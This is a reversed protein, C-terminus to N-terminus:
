YGAERVSVDRLYMPDKNEFWNYIYIQADTNNEGTTFTLHHPGYTVGQWIICAAAGGFNDASMSMGVEESVARMTVKLTYSTKPKLGTFIQTIREGPKFQLAPKGGDDVVGPTGTVGWSSLLGGEFLGNQVFNIKGYDVKPTWGPFNRILSEVDLRGNGIKDSGRAALNNAYIPGRLSSHLFYKSFNNRDATTPLEALGLALAGAYLPSAFSTGTFSAVRDGPFASFISEGPAIGWLQAGYNTFSSLIDDSNVSGIGFMFGLGDGYTQAAPFTIGDLLGDNGASSVVYVKQSAAYALQTTLSKQSQASGLSLNIVDAGHAVAWDIALVVNDLDGSGNSDLVRLPLITVKPAVQLIIGAVGTGHGYGRDKTTGTEQPTADGDVYDKWESLPALRGAFAPHNLDIGTDIVAVKVGQGFNRSIKQAQALRIQAFPVSNQPPLDPISSGGSWSTWGGSWSTWGGSWSTWGGIWASAANTPNRNATPIVSARLAGNSEDVGKVAADNSSPKTTVSLIAFGAEPHWSRISGAYKQELQASTDNASTRVTVTFKPNELGGPPPTGCAILSVFGVAVPVTRWLPRTKQRVDGSKAPVTVSNMSPQAHCLKEQVVNM